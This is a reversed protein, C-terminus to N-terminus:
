FSARLSECHKREFFIKKGQVNLFFFLVLPFAGLVAPLQSASRQPPCAGPNSPRPERRGPQGAPQTLWRGPDGLRPSPPSRSVRSKGVARTVESPRANAEARGEGERTGTGGVSRGLPSATGRLDSKLDWGPSTVAQICNERSGRHTRSSPSTGHLLVPCQALHGRLTDRLRSTTCCFLFLAEKRM